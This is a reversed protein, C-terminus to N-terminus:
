RTLGPQVPTTAQCRGKIPMVSMFELTTVVCLLRESLSNPMGLAGPSPPSPVMDAIDVFQAHRVLALEATEDHGGPMDDLVLM